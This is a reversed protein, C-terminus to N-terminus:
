ETFCVDEFTGDTIQIVDSGFAEQMTCSFKGSILKNELDCKTIELIGSGDGIYSKIGNIYVFSMIGESSDLTQTNYVGIPICSNSNAVNLELAIDFVNLGSQLRLGFARAVGQPNFPSPDKLQLHAKSQIETSGVPLTVSSGDEKFSIEKTCEIQTDNGEDDKSCSFYLSTLILFLFLKYSKM